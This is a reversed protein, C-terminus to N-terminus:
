NDRALVSAVCNRIEAIGSPKRIYGAIETPSALKEIEEHGSHLIVPVPYKKLTESLIAKSTTDGIFHDIVILDPQFSSLDKDLGDLNNKLFLDYQNGLVLELLELIENEDDLILIKKRGPM